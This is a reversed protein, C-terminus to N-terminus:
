KHGLFTKKKDYFSKTKIKGINGAGKNECYINLICMKHFQSYKQHLQEDICMMLNACLTNVCIETPKNANLYQPANKLICYQLTCLLKNLKQPCSIYFLAPFQIIRSFLNLFLAWILFLDKSIFIKYQVIIESVIYNKKLKQNMGQIKIIMGQLASNAQYIIKNLTHM